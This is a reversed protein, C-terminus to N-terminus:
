YYELLTGTLDTINYSSGSGIVISAIGGTTASAGNDGAAHYYGNTSVSVDVNATYIFGSGSARLQNLELRLPPNPLVYTALGSFLDSTGMGFSNDTTGYAYGGRYYVLSAGGNSYTMLTPSNPYSSYIIEDILLVIRKVNDDDSTNITVTTSTGGTISIETRKCVTADGTADPLTITRDATPDIVALSTEFADATSGEFSVNGSVLIGGSTVELKTSGGQQLQLTGTGNDNIISNTGNHFLELDNSTGLSVKVNDDALLDDHIKFGDTETSAKLTGNYYLEVDTNAGGFVAAKTIGGRAIQIDNFNIDAIINSGNSYLELDTGAGFVAKNNDGFNINNGNTDLTAGLQPTTDDALNQLFASAEIGDLTDADLGNGSGEDGTTLIRGTTGGSAIEWYDNTENWQLAVNTSTGREVEIGADQSPTGAENSNLTIINDALNITETNVTTTTGSVTLDGGIILNNGIEANGIINLSDSEVEGTVGIGSTTTTLKGSGGYSLIVGNSYTTSILTQYTGTGNDAKINIGDPSNFQFKKAESTTGQQTSFDVIRGYYPISDESIELLNGTTTATSSKITFVPTNNYDPSTLTLTNGFGFDVNGSSDATVVKSAEVTGETTIDLRNIEATTATVGDLKNLEATSATIGDLTNIESATATVGDLINLEATTATIGDLTNIESATATIATGGLSLSSPNTGVEVITGSNNTFLRKDSTNVALEGTDLDSTTPVASATTSKKILIKSAM